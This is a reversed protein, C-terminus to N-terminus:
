AGMLVQAMSLIYEFSAHTQSLVSNITKELGYVNNYNITIISLTMLQVECIFLYTSDNEGWNGKQVLKASDYVLSGIINMNLNM